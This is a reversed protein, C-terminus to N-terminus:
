RRLFVGRQSQAHFPGKRRRRDELTEEPVPTRAAGEALLQGEDIAGFVEGEPTGDPVILVPRPSTLDLNALEDPISATETAGGSLATPFFIPLESAPIFGPPPGAAEVPQPFLDNVPANLDPDSAPAQPASSFSPDVAAPANEIISAPAPLVAAADDEVFEQAQITAPLVGVVLGALLPLPEQCIVIKPKVTM